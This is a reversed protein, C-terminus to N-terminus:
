LSKVDARGLLNLIICVLPGDIPVLIKHSIKNKGKEGYLLNM